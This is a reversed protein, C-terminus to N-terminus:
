QLYNYVNWFVDFGYAVSWLYQMPKDYLMLLKFSCVIYQISIIIQGWWEWNIEGGRHPIAQELRSHVQRGVEVRLLLDGVPVGFRWVSRVVQLQLRIDYDKRTILNRKNKIM